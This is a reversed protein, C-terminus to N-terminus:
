LAEPPFPKVGRGAAEVVFGIMKAVMDQAAQPSIAFWEGSVRHEAFSVHAYKEIRRALEKAVEYHSVVTVPYPSDVQMNSMRVYLNAAMGIKVFDHIQAIYVFTRDPSTPVAPLPPRRVARM